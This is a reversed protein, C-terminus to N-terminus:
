IKGKKSEPDLYLEMHLEEGLELQDRLHNDHGDWAGQVLLRRSTEVVKTQTSKKRRDKQEVTIRERRVAYVNWRLARVPGTRMRWEEVFGSGFEDRIAKYLREKAEEGSLGPFFLTSSMRVGATRMLYMDEGEPDHTYVRGFAYWSSSGYRTLIEVSNESIHRTGEGTIKGPVLVTKTFDSDGVYVTDEETLSRIEDAAMPRVKITDFELM